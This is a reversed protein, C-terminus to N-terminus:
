RLEVPCQRGYQDIWIISLDGEEYDFRIEQGDDEMEFIESILHDKLLSSEILTDISSEEFWQGLNNLDNALTIVESHNTTEVSFSQYDGSGLYFNLSIKFYNTKMNKAKEDHIIVSTYM